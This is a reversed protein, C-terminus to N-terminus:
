PAAEARAAGGAPIFRGVLAVMGAAALALLGLLIQLTSETDTQPLQGAATANPPSAKVLATRAEGAPASPTVDVAVLSTYRSVLHHELAVKVVAPRITEEAAGLRLEDMLSAIKARAWLAGVGTPESSPSPTLAVSWPENGRLGSVV